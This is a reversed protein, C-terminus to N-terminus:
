ENTGGLYIKILRKSANTDFYLRNGDGILKAGYKNIYHNVLITKSKLVVFGDFGYNFSDRAVYALLTGAVNDYVKSKGVNHPASELRYIFNYRSQPVREFEV